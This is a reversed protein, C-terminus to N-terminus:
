WITKRGCECIPVSVYGLWWEYKNLFDLKWNLVMKGMGQPGEVKAEM